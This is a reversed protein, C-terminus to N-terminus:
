LLLMIKNSPLLSGFVAFGLNEFSLDFHDIFYELPGGGYLVMYLRTVHRVFAKKYNQKLKFYYYHIFLELIKNKHKCTKNRSIEVDLSVLFKIMERHSICCSYTKFCYNGKFELM